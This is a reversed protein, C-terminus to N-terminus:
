QRPTTSPAPGSWRWCRSANQPVKASMLHTPEDGAAAILANRLRSAASPVLSLKPGNSARSQSPRDRTRRSGSPTISTQDQADGPDHVGHWTMEVADAIFAASNPTSQQLPPCAKLFATVGQETKEIIKLVSLCNDL